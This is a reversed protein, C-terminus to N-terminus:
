QFLSIGKELLIKPIKNIKKEHVYNHIFISFPVVTRQYYQKSHNEDRYKRKFDFTIFKFYEDLIVELKITREQFLDQQSILTDIDIIVLPQVRAINYGEEKLKGLENIFWENVLVNLGSVNFQHDHLVIIPYIYLSSIKYNLDFPFGKSLTRKINNILQLVAKNVIRGNSDDFYLKKKFEKEYLNFDYSPKITANILIDKSEFLFLYNGKRVYYDPEADLGLEKIKSGSFKIYRGKYISELLTYLLYKESFEDCYFSRFNKIIRENIPILRNLEDLKFFLGKHIKELVFLGFIIRYRGDSVKYFPRSRLTKFDYENIEESEVVALKEIFQCTEHYDTGNQVIFDNYSENESKIVPIALPIIRKIYQKWDTCNFHLLFKNLLVETANTSELFEFLFVSKVLQGTLVNTMEYNTLDSYPIGQALILSAFNKIKLRNVELNFAMEQRTSNQQNLVLCAKFINLEAETKTQSEIESLKEFCFEFLQLASQPNIIILEGNVESELKKLKTYIENGLESNEKCFFMSLFTSYNDYQSNKNYFALFFSAASLLTSRGIGNLLTSLEPPEDDFVSKYEVLLMSSIGHNM